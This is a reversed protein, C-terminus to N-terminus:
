FDDLDRLPRGGDALAPGPTAHGWVCEHSRFELHKQQVGHPRDAWGARKTVGLARHRPGVQPVKLLQSWHNPWQAPCM